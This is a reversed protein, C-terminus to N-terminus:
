SNTEKARKRAKADILLSQAAYAAGAEGLDVLAPAEVPKLVVALLHLKGFKGKKFDFPNFIRYEILASDRPLVDQVEQASADKSEKFRGYDESRRRLEVEAAELSQKLARREEAAIAPNLAANALANQRQQVVKAAEVIRPDKSTRILNALWAADQALRKKWRLTLDAAFRQREESPHRLAFSFM